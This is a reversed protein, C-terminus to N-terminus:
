RPRRPRHRRPRLRPSRACPHDGHWYRQVCRHRAPHHFRKHGGGRELVEQRSWWRNFEKSKVTM